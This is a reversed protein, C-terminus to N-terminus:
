DAGTLAIKEKVSFGIITECCPFAYTLRITVTTFAVRTKFNWKFLIFRERCLLPFFSKKLGFCCKHLFLTARKRVTKAFSLPAIANLNIGNVPDNVKITKRLVFASRREFAKSICTRLTQTPSFVTFPLPFILWFPSLLLFNCFPVFARGKSLQTAPWKDIIKNKGSVM